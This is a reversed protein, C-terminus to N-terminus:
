PDASVTKSDLLSSGRRSVQWRSTVGVVLPCQSARHWGHAAFLASVTM